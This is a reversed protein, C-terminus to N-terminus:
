RQKREKTSICHYRLTERGEVSRNELCDYFVTTGSVLFDGDPEWSVVIDRIGYVEKPPDWRMSELVEGPLDLRVTGDDQILYTGHVMILSYKWGEEGPDFDGQFFPFNLQSGQIGSEIVREYNVASVKGDIEGTEPIRVGMFPGSLCEKWLSPLAVEDGDLDVPGGTWDMEVLRYVGCIRDATALAEGTMEIKYKEGCGTVGWLLVLSAFAIIKKM